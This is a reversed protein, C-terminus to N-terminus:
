ANGFTRCRLTGSNQTNRKRGKIEEVGQKAPELGIVSGLYEHTKVDLLRTGLDAPNGTGPVKCLTLGERQLLDKVFLFRLEVRKM